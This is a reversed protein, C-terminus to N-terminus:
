TTMLRQLIDLASLDAAHVIGHYRLRVEAYRHDDGIQGVVHCLLISQLLHKRSDSGLKGHAFVAQMRVRLDRVYSSLSGIRSWRTSVLELFTSEPNRAHEERAASTGYVLALYRWVAGGKLAEDDGIAKRMTTVVKETLRTVLLRGVRSDWGRVDELTPGAISSLEATQGRTRAAQARQEDRATAADVAARYATADLVTAVGLDIIVCKAKFAFDSFHARQGDFM